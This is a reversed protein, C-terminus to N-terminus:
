KSQNRRVFNDEVWTKIANAQNTEIVQVRTNINAVTLINNDQVTKLRVLEKAQEVQTSQVNRTVNYTLVSFIAVISIITTIGYQLWNSRKTENVSDTKLDKAIKAAAVVVAEAIIAAQAQQEETTM